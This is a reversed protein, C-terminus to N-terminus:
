QMHYRERSSHTQETCFLQPEYEYGIKLTEITDITQAADAFTTEVSTIYQPLTFGLRLYM